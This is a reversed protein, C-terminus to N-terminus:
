ERANNDIEVCNKGNIKGRYLANDAMRITGDVSLDVDFECTGFTMTIHLDGGRDPIVTEEVAVRIKEAAKYASKGSTEPLMFLFEEGGWRAVVDQKRTNNRFVDAVSKLVNDGTEHGYRDNIIKFNDIDAIIISCLPTGRKFRSEERKLQELIHMRNALGTLFDTRVMSDLIKTKELLQQSLLELSESYTKLDNHAAMLSVHTDVRALLEPSNFPKTIYDVGGSEFGRIVDSMNKKSTIFIVPIHSTSNVSKLMRCVEFGDLQPMMIDLLILDPKEETAVKVCSPGDGVSRIEYRNQLIERILRVNVSSDDAILIKRM